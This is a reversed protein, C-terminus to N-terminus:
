RPKRDSQPPPPDIVISPDHSGFNTFINSHVTQPLSAESKVVSVSLEFGTTGIEGVEFTIGLPDGNSTTAWPQSQFTLGPAAGFTLTFKDSPNSESPTTTLTIVASGPVHLGINSGTSTSVSDVVPVPKVMFTAEFDSM